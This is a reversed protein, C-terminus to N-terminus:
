TQAKESAGKIRRVIAMEQHGLLYHLSEGQVAKEEQHSTKRGM